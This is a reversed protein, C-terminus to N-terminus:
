PIRELQAEREQIRARVDALSQDLYEAQQKLDALDQEPARGLPMVGGWGGGQMWGLAATACLRNRWGRRFGMGAGRGGASNINGPTPSGGCYGAARGTLPGVGM